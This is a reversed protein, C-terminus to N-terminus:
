CHLDNYFTKITQHTAGVYLVENGLTTLTKGLCFLAHLEFRITTLNTVFTINGIGVNSTVIEESQTELLIM